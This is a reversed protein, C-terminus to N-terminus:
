ARGGIAFRAFHRALIEADQWRDEPQKALCRMVVAALDDPLDPRLARLPPPEVVLHAALVARTSEGALPLRGALLEYAVVGLAYIDTRRDIEEDGAAQEPSMYAPTGVVAGAATSRTAVAEWLARAVGFDTVWAHRESLLVNEPKVDRHVVELAHAAALADAVDRLVTAAEAVPTRRGGKTRARLSPGDVFPMVYFPVGETEGSDILTLIHPHNLRAAIHIERLFRDAGISAAVEPRLLKVAVPRDHRTDHARYVVAMAGRGVEGEIRYRSGPGLRRGTPAGAVAASRPKEGPRKAVAAPAPELKGGPRKAGETSRELLRDLVGRLEHLDFPKCLFDAAGERMAGVATGVDHYATMMVVDASPARKRLLRLLDMGDLGKMRIDSLVVDPAGAAKLMGLAEEASSAVSVDASWDDLAAALTTRITPDDDVVLVRRNM